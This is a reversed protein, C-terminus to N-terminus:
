MTAEHIPVSAVETYEEDVVRGDVYMVKKAGMECISVRDLAV